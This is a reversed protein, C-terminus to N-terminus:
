NNVGKERKEHLKVQTWFEQANMVEGLTIKMDYEPDIGRDKLNTTTENISYNLLVHFSNTAQCANDFVRLIKMAKVFTENLNKFTETDKAAEPKSTNEQLQQAERFM